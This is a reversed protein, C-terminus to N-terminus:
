PSSCSSKLFLLTPNQGKDELSSLSFFKQLQLSKLKPIANLSFFVDIIKFKLTIKSVPVLAITKGFYISLKKLFLNFFISQEILSKDKSILLIM